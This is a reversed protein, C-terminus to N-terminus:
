DEDEAVLLAASPCLGAELLSMGESGRLGRVPFSTKLDFTSKPAAEWDAVAAFEFLSAVPTTAHFARSITAGAGARFRISAVNSGIEPRPYTVEFAERRRAIDALKDAAEAQRLCHAKEEEEAALRRAAEAQEAELREAELREAEAVARLEDQILSEEYEQDQQARINRSEASEAVNAARNV